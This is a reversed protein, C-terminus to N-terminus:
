TSVLFEDRIFYKARTVRRDEGDEHSASFVFLFGSIYKVDSLDDKTYEPL